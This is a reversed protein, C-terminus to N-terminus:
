EHSERPYVGEEGDSTYEPKGVNSKRGVGFLTDEDGYGCERCETREKRNKTGCDACFVHWKGAVQKDNLAM